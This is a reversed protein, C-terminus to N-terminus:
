EAETGPLMATIHTTETTVSHESPKDVTKPTVALVLGHPRQIFMDGLCYLSGQHFSGDHQRPLKSLVWFHEGRSLAMGIDHLKEDVKRFYLQMAPSTMTEHYKFAVDTGFLAAVVFNDLHVVAGLVGDSIRAVTNNRNAIATLINAVNTVNFPMRVQFEVSHKFVSM